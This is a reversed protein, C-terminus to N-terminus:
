WLVTGWHFALAAWVFKCAIHIGQDLDFSIRQRCKADDCIFHIVFEMVAIALSGTLLGVFGAHILCHAGMAQYWPVDVKPMMRNKAVALFQGQLPYDALAHGVILLFVLDWFDM